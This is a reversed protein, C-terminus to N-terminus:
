RSSRVGTPMVVLFLPRLNRIWSDETSEWRWEKKGLEILNHFLRGRFVFTQLETALKLDM